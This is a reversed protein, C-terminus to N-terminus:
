LPGEPRLWCAFRAPCGQMMSSNIECCAKPPADLDIAARVRDFKAYIESILQDNRPVHFEKMRFPYGAEAMLLIGMDAGYNDLGISLQADWTDKITEQRSFGRPNITNHTPVFGPGAVYLASEHAVTICRVPVTDVEKVSVISNLRLNQMSTKPKSDWQAKKRPMSFPSPGWATSFKVWYVTGCDRGDIKARTENWTARYGLSRVLQLVQRMLPENVMCIQAQHDGVTGDSDMLGALLERRQSESALLYQEPIHKNGWCKGQKGSVKPRKGMLGLACFRGRVGRMYLQPAKGSSQIETWEMALQGLRRKLYPLDGYGCTIVPATASGDGLWAGLLWPDIPLDQEPLRLPETVPVRFRYRGSWKAEAIEKTTMVRDRRATRDNVTWLHEADTVIKQGDRFTVEYCPRNLNVPHAKLVKTPQGDPAYVEDGDRLEGMTAWGKTTLIPTSCALSKLEVPLVQGNPHHVIFDIRGRVHHDHNVYEYEINEEGVVLGAMQFQTQVVSHLSSGMALTLQSALNRRERRMQDRTEPHFMLYLQREEMLAHTSPHFYGDGHGYYPSSDVTVTYSDPWNEALLANELYPLILERAQLRRLIGGFVGSM